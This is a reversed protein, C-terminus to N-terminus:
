NDNHSVLAGRICMGLYLQKLRALLGIEIPLFSIDNLASGICLHLSLVIANLKM